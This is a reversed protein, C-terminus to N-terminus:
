ARNVARKADESLEDGRKRLFSGIAGALVAIV